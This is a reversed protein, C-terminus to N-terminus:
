FLLLPPEDLAPCMLQMTKKLKPLFFLNSAVGISNTTDVM